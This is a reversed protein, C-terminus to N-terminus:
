RSAVALPLEGLIRRSKLRTSFSTAQVLVKDSLATLHYLPSFTADAPAKFSGVGLDIALHKETPTKVYAASGHQVDWVTVELLNM